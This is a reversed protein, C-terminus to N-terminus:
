GLDDVAENRDVAVKLTVVEQLHLLPVLFPVSHGQRCVANLAHRHRAPIGLGYSQHDRAQVKTRTQLRILPSLAFFTYLTLNRKV